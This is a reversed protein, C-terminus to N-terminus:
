SEYKCSNKSYMDQFDDLSEYSPGIFLGTDEPVAFVEGNFNYFRFGTYLGDTLTTESITLSDEDILWSGIGSNPRDDNEGIWDRGWNIHLENNDKFSGWEGSAIYNKFKSNVLFEENLVRQIEGELCYRPDTRPLENLGGSYNDYLHRIFLALSALVIVLGLKFILNQNYKKIRKAM